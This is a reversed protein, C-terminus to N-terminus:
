LSNTNKKLARLKLPYNHYKCTEIPKKILNSNGYYHLIIELDTKKNLEHSIEEEKNNKDVAVECSELNREDLKIDANLNSKDITLCKKEAKGKVDIENSVTEELAESALDVEFSTDYIPVGREAMMLKASTEAECLINLLDIDDLEETVQEYVKKSKKFTYNVSFIM